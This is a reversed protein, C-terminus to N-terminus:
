HNTRSKRSRQIKSWIDLSLNQAQALEIEDLQSGLEVLPIEQDGLSTNIISRWAYERTLDAPIDEEGSYLKVLLKQIELDGQEAALQFWNLAQKFDQSVGRGDYYAMGTLVQGDKLGGNASREYWEFAKKDNRPVGLGKSYMIGLNLQAKQHNKSAALLSWHFALSHDKALGDGNFYLAGLQFQSNAHGQYAANAFWYAAEIADPDTGLGTLYATACLYQAQANGQMAAGRLWRLSEQYNKKRLALIGLQAQAEQVGSSGAKHLWELAKNEDQPLELAGTLYATGLTLQAQLHGGAAARQLYENARATDKATIVGGRYIRSLYWLSAPHGEKALSEWFVIARKQNLPVKKGNFYLEGLQYISEQHGRSAAEFLLRLAQATLPGEGDLIQRARAYAQDGNQHIIKEDRTVKGEMHRLLIRAQEIGQSASLTLFRKFDPNSEGKPHTKLILLATALQAYPQQLLAAERYWYEAKTTSVATGRGFLFNGGLLLMVDSHGQSAKKLYFDHNTGHYKYMPLSTELMSNPSSEFKVGTYEELFQNAWNLFDPDPPLGAALCLNLALFYVLILHKVSM